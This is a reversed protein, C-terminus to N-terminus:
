FSLSLTAALKFRSEIQEGNLEQVVPFSPAVTLSFTGLPLWPLTMKVATAARVIAPTAIGLGATAAATTGALKLFSRRHLPM